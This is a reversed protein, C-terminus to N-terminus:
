RVALTDATVKWVCPAGPAPSNIFGSTTCSWYVTTGPANTPAYANLQFSRRASGEVGQGPAYSVTANVNAPGSSQYKAEAGPAVSPFTKDAVVVTVVHSTLNTVTLSPQEGGIAVAFCAALLAVAGFTAARM